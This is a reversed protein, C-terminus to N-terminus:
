DTKQITISIPMCAYKSKVWDMLEKVTTADNCYASVHSYTDLGAQTSFKFEVIFDMKALDM